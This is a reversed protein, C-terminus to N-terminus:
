TAAYPPYQVDIDNNRGVTCKSRIDLVGTQNIPGYTIKDKGFFPQTLICDKRAHPGGTYSQAISVKATLTDTRDDVAVYDVGSVLVIHKDGFVLVCCPGIDDLAKIQTFKGHTHYDNSKWTEYQQLHGITILYQSVFGICDWGFCKNEILEGMAAPFPRGTRFVQALDLVKGNIKLYGEGDPNKKLSSTQVKLTRVDDLHAHMWNWLETFDRIDGQGTSMRIYNRFEPKGGVKEMLRRLQEILNQSTDSGGNVQSQSMYKNLKVNGGNTSLGEVAVWYAFDAPSMFAQAM